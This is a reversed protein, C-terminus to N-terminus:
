VRWSKTRTRSRDEFSRRAGMQDIGANVVKLKALIHKSCCLRNEVLRSVLRGSSAIEYHDFFNKM